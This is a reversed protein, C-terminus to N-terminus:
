PPRSCAIENRLENIETEYWGAPLEDATASYSKLLRECDALKSLAETPKKFSRLLGQAFTLLPYPSMPYLGIAEEHLSVALELNGARAEMDGLSQLLYCLSGKDGETRAKQILREFGKRASDFNGTHSAPVANRYDEEDSLRM